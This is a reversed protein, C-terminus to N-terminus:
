RIGDASRTAFHEGSAHDVIESIAYAGPPKLACTLAGAWGYSILMDPKGQAYVREVADAAAAAGMGGVIAVAAHGKITGTWLNRESRHWNHVLPKLEGPLAAIIAIRSMPAPEHPTDTRASGNSPPACLQTSRSSASASSASPRPPHPSCRKRAWASPKSRQEPNSAASVGPSTKM